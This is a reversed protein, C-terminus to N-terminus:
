LTSFREELKVLGRPHYGLKEWYGEKYESTFIISTVWKASKWGYLYPIIIRVPFGQEPSLPEGNIYLALLADESLFDTAPVITTYGDLSEIYVWKAEKKPNIKGALHSILVGKWMVKKVSWGTVCHFDRTLEKMPMNMLERYTFSTPKKVLGQFVLRWSDPDIGPQGLIRYIIFDPIYRQGPAENVAKEDTLASYNYEPISIRDLDKNVFNEMGKKLTIVSAFANQKYSIIRLSGIYSNERYIRYSYIIYDSGIAENDTFVVILGDHGIVESIVTRAISNVDTIGRSIPSDIKCRIILGVGKQTISGPDGIRCNKIIM